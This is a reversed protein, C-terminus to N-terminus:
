KPGIPHIIRQQLFEIIDPYLILVNKKLSFLVSRKINGPDTLVIHEKRSREKVLFSVLVDLYEATDTDICIGRERIFAKIEEDTKTSRGLLYEKNFSVTHITYMSFRGRRIGMERFGYTDGFFIANGEIGTM